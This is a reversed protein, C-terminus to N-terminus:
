IKNHKIISGVKVKFMWDEQRLRELQLIVYRYDRVLLIFKLLKFFGHLGDSCPGLSLEADKGSM